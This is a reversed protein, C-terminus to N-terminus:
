AKLNQKMAEAIEKESSHESKELSHVINKQENETKNQSLKYKGELRDVEIEFAVIGKVMKQIYDKPLENMQQQYKEEYRKITKELCLVVEKEDSLIKAKGHAHVAIYNWTPVNQKKEYNDPSIYASPGSFIILLETNKEFVNWQENARAMHSILKVKENKSEIIFPLHTALLGKESNCVLVGFSNAQMFALLKETNEEKYYHPIFM